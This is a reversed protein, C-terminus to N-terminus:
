TTKKVISVIKTNCVCLQCRFWNKKEKDIHLHKVNPWSITLLLHGFLGANVPMLNLELNHFEFYVNFYFPKKGM